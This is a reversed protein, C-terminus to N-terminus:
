LKAKEEDQLIKRLVKGGPTKPLDDRYEFFRQVKHGTLKERYFDHLEEVM